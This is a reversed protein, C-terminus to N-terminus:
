LIQSNYIALCNSIFGGPKYNEYDFGLSIEKHPVRSSTDQFSILSKKNFHQSANGAAMNAIAFPM